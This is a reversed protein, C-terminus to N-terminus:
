FKPACGLYVCPQNDVRILTIKQEELLLDLANRFFFRGPKEETGFVEPYKASVAEALTKVELRSGENVANRAQLEEAILVHPKALRWVGRLGFMKLVLGRKKLEYLTTHVTGETTQVGLKNICARLDAVPLSDESELVQIIAQVLTLPQAPETDIEYRAALLRLGERQQQLLILSQEQQAIEREVRLLEDKIAKRVLTSETEM